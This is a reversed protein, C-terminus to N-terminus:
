PVLVKLCGPIIRYDLQTVPQPLLEGDTHAPSPRDLRIKLWTCDIEHIGNEHVFDGKPDMTKPLVAFTSLRTSRYAYVFTLKGDSPKAHPSMYFLGGTRSGNGVSVLTLPGQYHGDDWDLVANWTPHDLIGQVAAVLYRLIGKIWGIKVQKTTVYPELGIASNNAFYLGNVYGVDIVQSKGAAIVRAAATLDMPLGLTAALDNATGLPLIGLVGLDQEHFARALGNVVDGVTGDGGAAIVPSFGERAARAALEVSAKPYESLALEFDLGAARLAAEAEAWRKQANWRNSYPNLIVKAPM